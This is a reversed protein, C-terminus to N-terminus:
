TNQFPNYTTQITEICGNQFTTEILLTSTEFPGQPLGFQFSFFGPSSAVLTNTSGPRGDYTIQVGTPPVDTPTYTLSVRNGGECDCMGIGDIALSIACRSSQAHAPLVGTQVLPKAWRAPLFAAAALAGGGAALAKLMERRSLQQRAAQEDTERQTMNHEKKILAPYKASNYWLKTAQLVPCTRDSSDGNIFRQWHQPSGRVPLLKM